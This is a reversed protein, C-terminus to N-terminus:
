SGDLTTDLTAAKDLEAKTNIAMTETSNGVAVLVAIALGVLIALLLTWDVTVAGSDDSAFTKWKRVLFM